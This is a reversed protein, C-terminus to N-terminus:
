SWIAEKTANSSAMYEAEILLIAVTLQKKLSWSVSSGAVEFVFEYVWLLDWVSLERWISYSPSPLRFIPFVLIAVLRVPLLSYIQMLQWSNASIALPISVLHANAMEFCELFQELYSEQPLGILHNACDCELLIVSVYRLKVHDEIASLYIWWWRPMIMLPWSRAAM